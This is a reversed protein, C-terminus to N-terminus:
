DNNNPQPYPEGWAAMVDVNPCECENVDGSCIPFTAHFAKPTEASGQSAAPSEDHRIGDLAYALKRTSLRVLLDAVILGSLMDDEYRDSKVIVTEDMGDVSISLKMTYLKDSM